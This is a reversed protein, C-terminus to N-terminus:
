LTIRQNRHILLHIKMFFYYLRRFMLFQLGIFIIGNRTCLNCCPANSRPGIRWGVTIISNIGIDIGELRVFIIDNNQQIFACILPALLTIIGAYIPMCMSTYKSCHCGALWLVTIHVYYNLLKISHPSKCSAMWCISIMSLVYITETRNMDIICISLWAFIRRPRSSQIISCVEQGNQMDNYKYVNM